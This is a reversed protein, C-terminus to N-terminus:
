AAPGGGAARVVELGDPGGLPAWRRGPGATRAAAIEVASIDRGGSGMPLLVRRTGRQLRLFDSSGEEDIGGCLGSAPRAATSGTAPGDTGAPHYPSTM